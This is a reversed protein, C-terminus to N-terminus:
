NRLAKGNALMYEIRDQTPKTKILEMFAEHELDLLQQETLNNSSLIKTLETYIFLDHESTKELLSSSDIKSDNLLINEQKPAQYDVALQLCLEKADALLRARNMTIRSKANLIKMDIADDASSATKATSIYEFVKASNKHRLLMETCGGWAPVLGVGFEVLGPYSEIHAQVADSHLLIECGGGLALGSLASVVPFDSYKLKMLANQGRKIIDSIINWEQNKAANLFVNLNAGVSFNDADSGIVLGKFDKKVLEISKEIMEIIDIDVANMKSTFELCAVGDGIDWLTASNNKIIPQKGIKKENLTWVGAIQPLLKYEGNLSLYNNKNDILQYFKKDKAKTLFEPVPIKEEEAMKILNAAGIKDILEFIGFKWNYGWKMTNDIAVIDDAIEPLLSAAYCLTKAITIKAFKGGIDQHSLLAFLGEK